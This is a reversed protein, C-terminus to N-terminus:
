AQDALPGTTEGPNRTGGVQHDVPAPAQRCSTLSAGHLLSLARPAPLRPAFVQDLRGGREDTVQADLTPKDGRETRAYADSM